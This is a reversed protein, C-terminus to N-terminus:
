CLSTTGENRGGRTLKGEIAHSMHRRRAHGPLQSQGRPRIHHKDSRDSWLRTFLFRHPQLRGHAGQHLRVHRRTEISSPGVCTGDAGHAWAKRSSRNRTSPGLRHQVHQSSLSRRSKSRSRPSHKRLDKLIPRCQSAVLDGVHTSREPSAAKHKQSGPGSQQPEPKMQRTRPSKTYRRGESESSSPCSWCFVVSTFLAHHRLRKDRPMLGKCLMGLHVM